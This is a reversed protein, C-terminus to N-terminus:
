GIIHFVLKFKAGGAMSKLEMFGRANRYRGTGGTIALTSNKADYFPGEVTIQGKPLFTTQNCEFATGAVTRVCYGQDTGVKATDKANFVDNAFTLLDGPSDGPAGTDTTAVGTQHEIVTVVKGGRSDGRSHSKGKGWAAVALVVLVIAALAIAVSLKRKM